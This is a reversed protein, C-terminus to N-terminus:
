QGGIISPDGTKWRCRIKWLKIKWLGDSSKSLDVEYTAGVSFESTTPDAGEGPLFHTSVASATLRANGGEILIRENGMVHTTDLPGVKAFGQNVINEIGRTETDDVQFVVNKDNHFSSLFLQRNNTDLSELCRCMADRVAERDSLGSINVPIATMDTM